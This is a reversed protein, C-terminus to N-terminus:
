IHICDYWTTADNLIMVLILIKNFTHVYVTKCVSTYLYININKNKYHFGYRQSLELLEPYGIENNVM